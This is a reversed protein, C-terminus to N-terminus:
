TVNSPIIFVLELSDSSPKNNELNCSYLGEHIGVVTLTHTYRAPKPLVVVSKSTGDTINVSDRKWTVTTVPGGSSTCTLTFQPNLGSLDSDVTLELSGIADVYGGLSIM